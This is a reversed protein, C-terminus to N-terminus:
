SISLLEKYMSEMEDMEDDIRRVEPIHSILQQIQFPDDIIRGIQESLGASDGRQFLYGNTGHQVYEAIGGVDSAIVPTKCAFAEQIVRPNNEYWLSPVVLIDINSLIDGLKDYHFPGHFFISGPNHNEISQLYQWYPPELEQPGFLHLEAKGHWDKRGFAKLLIHVGKTQIFQGIYGFRVRDSPSKKTKGELWALDHGSQIVRIEKYIGSHEMLDRLYKSPATVINADKLIGRLYSKRESINLARGRLVPLRNIASVKSLGDLISTTIRDSSIKKLEKYINSHWTLCQICDQSTTIGNCLSGDYKLLSLKHCLFWFDTLTLVVPVDCERAAGIISASLTLCSTIHVLDPKWEVICKKLFQATKPNKYLYGNPDPSKHWSMNIRRVPIDQYVEDTYGNWYQEADEEFTGACLVQVQYGRNLLSRAYGFTRKETGANRAPPFFSTVLLFKMFNLNSPSESQIEFAKTHEAISIIV